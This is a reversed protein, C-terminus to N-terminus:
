DIVAELAPFSLHGITTHALGLTSVAGRLMGRVHRLDVALMTTHDEVSLGNDSGTAKSAASELHDLLDATRRVVDILEAITHYSGEPATALTRDHLEQRLAEAANSTSTTM